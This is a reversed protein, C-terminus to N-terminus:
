LVHVIGNGTVVLDGDVFFGGPAVVIYEDQGVTVTRGEPVRRSRVGAELASIRTDLDPGAQTPLTENGNDVANLFRVLFPKTKVPAAAGLRWSVQTMLEVGTKDNASTGDPSGLLTNLQTSNFDAVAEYYGTEADVPESFGTVFTIFGDDYKGQEKTGWRIVTGPVLLEPVRDRVFRFGFRPGTGRIAEIVEVPEPVEAREILQPPTHGIDFTLIQM